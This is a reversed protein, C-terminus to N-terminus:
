SFNFFFLEREVPVTSCTKFKTLILNLNLYLRVLFKKMVYNICTMYTHIYTHICTCWASTCSSTSGIPVLKTSTPDSICDVISFAGAQRCYHWRVTMTIVSRLCWLSCYLLQCSDYYNHIIDQSVLCSRCYCLGHSVAPAITVASYNQGICGFECVITYKQFTVPEVSSRRWTKVPLRSAAVIYM